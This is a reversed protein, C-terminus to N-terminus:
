TWKVVDSTGRCIFYLKSVPTSGFTHDSILAVAFKRIDVVLRQSGRYTMTNSYSFFIFIYTIIHKKEPVSLTNQIDSKWELGTNMTM